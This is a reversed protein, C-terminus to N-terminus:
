IQTFICSSVLMYSAWPVWEGPLKEATQHAVEQPGAGTGWCEGPFNSAQPGAEVSGCGRYARGGFWSKGSDEPLNWWWRSCRTVTLCAFETRDGLTWIVNRVGETFFFFFLFTQPGNARENWCEKSQICKCQKVKKKKLLNFYRGPKKM